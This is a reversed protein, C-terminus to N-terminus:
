SITYGNPGDAYTHSASSPNGNVTQTVGDGWNITWSQITDQGPDSSSLGLTYGAGEDASAAGALALTPPVNTVTVLFSASGSSGDEDTVKVTVTYVGDDAYAHPQAALTGPTSATFTTHATGDGWGVDVAWPADPG